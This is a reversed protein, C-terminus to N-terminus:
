VQLQVDVGGVDRDSQPSDPGADGWDDNAQPTDPEQSSFEAAARAYRAGDFNETMTDIANMIQKPVFPSPNKKEVTSTTLGM